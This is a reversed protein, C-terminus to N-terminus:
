LAERHQSPYKNRPLHPLSRFGARWKPPHKNAIKDELPYPDLSFARAAMAVSRPIPAIRKEWNEIARASCGIAKAAQKQTFKFRARFRILDNADM